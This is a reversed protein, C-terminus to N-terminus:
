SPHAWYKVGRQQLKLMGEEKGENYLYACTKGMKLIPYGGGVMNGKISLGVGLSEKVM